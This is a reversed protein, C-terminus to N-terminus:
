GRSGRVRSNRCATRLTPCPDGTHACRLQVHAEPLRPVVTGLLAVRAPQRMDDLRLGPLHLLALGHQQAKGAIRADGAVLAPHSRRLARRADAPEHRAQGRMAQRAQQVRTVHSAVAILQFVGLLPQAQSDGFQHLLAGARQHQAAAM